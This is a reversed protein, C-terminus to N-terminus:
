RYRTALYAAVADQWDTQDIADSLVRATEDSGIDPGDQDVLTINTFPAERRRYGSRGSVFQWEWDWGLTILPRMESVWETYGELRAITAGTGMGVKNTVSEEYLGSLIHKFRIGFLTSRDLRVTGDPFLVVRNRTVAAKHSM